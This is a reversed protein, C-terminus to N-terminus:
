TEFLIDREMKSLEKIKVNWIAHKFGFSQILHMECIKLKLGCSEFTKKLSCTLDFSSFCISVFFTDILTLRGGYSLYQRNWPIVKMEYNDTIGALYKYIKRQGWLFDWAPASGPIAM